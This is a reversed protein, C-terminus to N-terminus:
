LNIWLFFERKEWYWYCFWLFGNWLVVSYFNILKIINLGSILCFVWKKTIIYFFPKLCFIITSINRWGLNFVYIFISEFYITNQLFCFLIYNQWRLKWFNIIIFLNLARRFFIFIRFFLDSSLTGLGEMVVLNGLCKTVNM